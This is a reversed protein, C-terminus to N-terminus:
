CHRVAQSVASGQLKLKLHNCFHFSHEVLLCHFLYQDVLCPNLLDPATVQVLVLCPQAGHHLMGESVGLRSCVADM